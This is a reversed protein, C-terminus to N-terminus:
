GHRIIAVGSEGPHQASIEALEKGIRTTEHLQFAM